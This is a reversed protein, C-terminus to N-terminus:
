LFEERPSTPFVFSSTFYSWPPKENRSFGWPLRKCSLHNFGSSSHPGKCHLYCIHTHSVLPSPSPNELSLYGFLARREISPNGLKTTSGCDFAVDLWKWCLGHQDFLRTNPREHTWTEQGCKHGHM